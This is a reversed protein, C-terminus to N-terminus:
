LDQGLREIEDCLFYVDEDKTAQNAFVMRFFNPKDDLPQYGIMMSGKLMMREKIKPAVANIKEMFEPSKRDLHQLSPPVYWFCVNTCEPNEMVMEFADRRKCESYLLAACHWLQDIQAEFGSDGKARWMLWCKFADINRGCQITKDGTDYKIDYMKDKQFLYSANMKNCSALIGKRKVLFASCQILAGMLKHPNWTVSDAREVGKMLGKHKESLLCAGGWAADIHCWMNYKKCIELTPEIPDYAGLVTTGATCCVFFPVEGKQKAELVMEELKEPIFKGQSDVPVKKLSETGMGLIAAARSMSYHSHASIFMVLRPMGFLGNDKTQPFHYHLATQVAYLNSISGGPNFLGDCEEEWGCMKGMKQLTLNEILNFAPAMEHTYMSSNCGATVWAAVMSVLDCGSFLQNFMRPHATKVSLDMVRQCDVMLKELSLPDKEIQFNEDFDAELKHPHTFEIVKEKRDNAKVLHKFILDTFRHLFDETIGIKGHPLINNHFLNEYDFASNNNIDGM